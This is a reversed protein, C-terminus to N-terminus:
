REEKFIINSTQQLLSLLKMYKHYVMSFCPAIRLQKAIVMLKVGCNMTTGFYIEQYMTPKLRSGPDDSM